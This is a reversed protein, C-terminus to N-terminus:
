RGLYVILVSIDAPTVGAIRSAQGINRPRHKSLKERSEYSLSILKHYDFDEQLEITEFRLIKDAFEQEKTIYGEYKLLIEAEEVIEDRDERIKAILNSLVPLASALDNLSVQPRLVLSAMKAKQLLPSTGLSELLANVEQPIVSENKTFEM